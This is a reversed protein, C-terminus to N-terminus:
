NILNIIKVLINLYVICFHLNVNKKKFINIVKSIDKYTSMGTSIFTHKKQKAVEEVFDLKTLLPSAIKNYKLKFKKPFEFKGPGLCFCVM